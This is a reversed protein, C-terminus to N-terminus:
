CLRVWGVEANRCVICRNKGESELIVLKRDRADYGLPPMDAACPGSNASMPLADRHM